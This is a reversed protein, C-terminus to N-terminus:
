QNILSVNIGGRYGSHLTFFQSLVNGDKDFTRVQPGLGAEPGFGIEAAGDGDLDGVVASFSGKINAPYAFFQSLLNGDKDFIRAQASGNTDPLVVIEKVGNGDVDGVYTKAGGTFTSAYGMFQTLLGGDKNFVKVHAVSNKPSTIVEVTGDGDLDALTLHIGKNYGDGYTHFQTLTNGDKDFIRVQGSGSTSYVVIEGTGNGDLDAAAVKGSGSLAGFEPVLQHGNRDYIWVSATGTKPTAIIEKTGDGDLDFIAINVGDRGAGAVVFQSLIGGNKDFIRLQADFGEGPITIVEVEGNGDLDAVETTLGMRLASSYAFWTALMNGDKDFVAVQPGGANMPTAVLNYPGDAQQTSAGFDQGTTVAFNTFHDVQVTILNNETDLTVGPPMQWTGSTDNYYKAIINNEDIGLSDLLEQDYPISITVMENFSTILQQSSDLAEFDWAFTIPKSDPTFFLNIDPSAIVTVDGETALANAPITVTTGDPLSIIKQVTSDFTESVGKPINFAAKSVVIDKTIEGKASVTVMQEDSRYFDESNPNFSDCGVFWTGLTLNVTYNGDFVEGGSFGGDEQWAHCWGFPINDGDENTVTGTLTADSERFQLDFEAPATPTVEIEVNEPPMYNNTEKSMGAGCEYQGSVLPIVTTGGRVENGGEIIKGGEFDGQAKDEMYRRNSCWVFGFEVPNGDPDSLNVTAQADARFAMLIKTATGNVPVLFPDMDSHTQMFEGSTPFWFNLVYKQGGRVRVTFSGDANLKSHMGPGSNPGMDEALNANIEVDVNTVKAGKQDKLWGVIEADPEVLTLFVEESGGEPITIEVEDDLLYGSNPDTHMGVVFTNGGILPIAAVGHDIGSGFESGAGWSEGKIRAYAYGWINETLANGDADVTKVTLTADALQVEYNVGTIQEDEELTYVMPPGGAQVPIYMSGGGTQVQCEYQGPALWITYKGDAGSNSNGWGSGSRSWCNINVGEVTTGDELTVKGKIASTKESMTLTGLDLTQDSAVEVNMEPLYYKALNPDQNDAQVTLKYSGDQVNANFCGTNWDLGTGGGMGAGTSINVFGNTLKSGNPLKVCGKILANTEQVTFNVTKEEETNNDAFTVQMSPQNYNWNVDMQRNNEQDWAPSLNINWTGGGVSLEYEGNSDVNANVGSGGQKSANIQATTVEGGTNYTVKGSITKTARALTITGLNTVSGNYTVEIPDPSIYGQTGGPVWIELIYTTGAVLDDALFVFNGNQDAGTGSNYSFDASRLNVGTGNLATGEPTLVKGSFAINGLQFVTSQAQPWMQNPPVSPSMIQLLGMYNGGGQTPNNIGTISFTHTGAGLANDITFGIHDSSKEPTGVIAIGSVSANSLNPQCLMWDVNPPCMSSTSTFNVVVPIGTAGGLDLENVATNLTFSFNYTINTAGKAINAPTVTFATVRTDNPPQQPEDALAAKTGTILIIGALIGIVGFIAVKKAKKSM